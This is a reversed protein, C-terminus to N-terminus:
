KCDPTYLADYRENGKWHSSRLIDSENARSMSKEEEM